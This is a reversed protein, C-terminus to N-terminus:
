AKKWVKVFNPSQSLTLFYEDFGQVNAGVVDIRVNPAFPVLWAQDLWLQNFKKYLAKAESSMPDVKELDSIFQVYESDEFYGINPIRYPFTQQFNTLPSLDCFAHSSVFMDTLQRRVFKATFANGEMPALEIKVGIAELNEKWVPAHATWSAGSYEIKLPQDQTFGAQNLLDRAKDPDYFPKELEPDFAPSGEPWPQVTTGYFGEGIEEAFRKRDLALFLAQRVRKDKLLPNTVNTGIYSLGVKPALRTLKKDRFRKAISASIGMLLEVEGSEFALGMADVDAFLKVEIADLYPGGEKAIGHWNPNRELRFSQGPTWSKFMYAGTAQVNKGTMLDPFTAAKTIGLQAFFDTMNVRAKDFTFEMTREDVKKKDKIVKAFTALQFSGTINFKKPDLIVDIGHFVDEPTVPSGDHFTVGQKLSVTLGTRDANYEFRDAIVLEPTLDKRYRVLTEIGAYGFYRNQPLLVYPFGTNLVMDTVQGAKLTGGKVPTAASPTPTDGAGIATAPTEEAGQGDDDDDGCGVAILSAAGAALAGGAGLLRRRGLPAGSFSSM